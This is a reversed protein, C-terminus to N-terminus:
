ANWKEKATRNEAQCHSRHFENYPGNLHKWYECRAVLEVPKRTSRTADALDAADVFPTHPTEPRSEVGLYIAESLLYLQGCKCKRLGGGAPM